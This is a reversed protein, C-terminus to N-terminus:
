LLLLCSASWTALEQPNVFNFKIVKNMYNKVISIGAKVIVEIRDALPM